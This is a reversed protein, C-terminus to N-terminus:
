VLRLCRDERCQWSLGCTVAVSRYVLICEALDPLIVIELLSRGGVSWLQYCCTLSWYTWKDLVVFQHM